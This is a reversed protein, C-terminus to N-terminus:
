SYRLQDFLEPNQKLRRVRELADRSVYLSRDKIHFSIPVIGLRALYKKLTVRSVGIEREAEKLTVYEGRQQPQQEDKRFV